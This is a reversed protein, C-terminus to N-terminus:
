ERLSFRVVEMIVAEDVHGARSVLHRVRNKAIVIVVLDDTAGLVASDAAVLVHGSSLFGKMRSRSAGRRENGRIAVIRSFVILANVVSGILSLDVSRIISSTGAGGLATRVAAGVTIVITVVVAVIVTIM